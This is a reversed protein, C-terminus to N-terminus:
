QRWMVLFGARGARLRATIDKVCPLHWRHNTLSICATVQASSFCVPNPYISTGTEFGFSMWLKILYWFFFQRKDFHFPMVVFLIFYLFWCSAMFPPFFRFFLQTRYLGVLSSLIGGSGLVTNYVPFGHAWHQVPLALQSRLAPHFEASSLRRSLPRKNACHESPGVGNPLPYSTPPM